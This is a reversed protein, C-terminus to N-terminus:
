RDANPILPIQIRRYPDFAYDLHIHFAPSLRSHESARIVQDLFCPNNSLNELQSMRTEFPLYLSRHYERFPFRNEKPINGELVVLTFWELLVASIAAAFTRSTLHGDYDKWKSMDAFHAYGLNIGRIFDPRHYTNFFARGDAAPIYIWKEPPVIDRRLLRCVNSKLPFLNIESSSCTYSNNTCRFTQLWLIYAQICTTLGCRRLTKSIVYRGIQQNYRRKLMIDIAYHQYSNLTLPVIRDADNIDHIFFESAAWFTFDFQKRLEDFRCRAESYSDSNFVALPSEGKLLRQIQPLHKMELPLFISRHAIARVHFCFRFGPAQRGTFPNRYRKM